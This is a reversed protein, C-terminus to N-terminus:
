VSVTAKSKDTIAWSLATVATTATAVTPAASTPAATQGASVSAAGGCAAALLAVITFAVVRMAVMVAWIVSASPRRTLSRMLFPSRHLSELGHARDQCHPTVRALRHRRRDHASDDLRAPERRARDVELGPVEDDDLLSRGQALDALDHAGAAVRGTRREGDDHEDLLAARLADRVRAARDLVHDESRPGVADPRVPRAEPRHGCHLL